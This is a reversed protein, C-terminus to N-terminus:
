GASIATITGHLWPMVDGLSEDWSSPLNIAPASASRGTSSLVAERLAAVLSVVDPPAAHIAPSIAALAEATKVGFTNTVVTGGAASMELPPYSTHPSLMLSLLLDSEGLFAAYQPYSLWPVPELVRHASLPLEVLKQGVARFEWPEDDFVGQAIAVRLVRLGLDFLNRPNRPRAYFVARRPAGPQRERRVFLSRDVAPTFSVVHGDVDDAGFMGVRESRLHDLLLRENVIARMPMGYTAAALAHKTSWPYFGPEFDQILYVFERARIVDLAANAIHATPWWTAFPVDGAGLALESGPSSADVIEIMSSSADVGAVQRIHARIAAENPALRGFTAVYRIRVGRQVLRATIQIITNPGGSMRDLDLHPMLVVLRADADRAPDHRPRPGGILIPGDLALYESFPPEAAQRGLGALHEISRITRGAVRRGFSGGPRNPPGGGTM